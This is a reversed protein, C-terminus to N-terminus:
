DDIGVRDITKRGSLITTKFTRTSVGLVRKFQSSLHQVSSYGLQWAIENLTLEGYTILEKVKELKLLIFYQEITNAEKQSFLKSVYSYEKGIYQSLYKKISFHEEIKAQQLKTILLNKIEEVQKNKADYLLEFGLPELKSGIAQLEKTNLPLDFGAFGLEVKVPIINLEKLEREVVLICRPCVM